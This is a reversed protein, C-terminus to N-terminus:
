KGRFLLILIDLVAAERDDASLLAFRSKLEEYGTFDLQGATEM